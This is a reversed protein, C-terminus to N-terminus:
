KVLIKRVENGSKRIVISGKQPRDAKRGYLNYFEEQHNEDTTIDSIGAYDDTIVSFDRWPSYSKYVGPCGTNVHLTCVDQDSFVGEGCQEMAGVCFDRRWIRGQM